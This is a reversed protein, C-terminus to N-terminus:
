DAELIQDVTVPEVNQLFYVRVDNVSCVDAANKRRVEQKFSRSRNINSQYSGIENQSISLTSVSIPFAVISSWM